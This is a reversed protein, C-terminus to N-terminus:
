NKHEYRDSKGFIGDFISEVHSLNHYMNKRIQLLKIYMKGFTVTFAKNVNVAAPVYRTGYQERAIDGMFAWLEPSGQLYPYGLSVLVPCWVFPSVVISLLAKPLISDLIAQPSGITRLYVIHSIKESLGIHM